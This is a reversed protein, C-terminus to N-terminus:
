SPAGAKSKTTPQTAAAELDTIRQQLKPVTLAFDTVLDNIKALLAEARTESAEMAAQLSTIHKAHADLAFTAHDKFSALAALAGLVRGDLVGEAAMDQIHEIMTRQEQDVPAAEQTEIHENHEDLDAM